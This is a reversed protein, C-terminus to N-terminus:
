SLASRARSITERGDLRRASVNAASYTHPLAFCARGLRVCPAQARTAVLAARAPCCPISGLSPSGDRGM